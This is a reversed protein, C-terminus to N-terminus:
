LLRQQKPEDDDLFSMQEPPMANPDGDDGNSEDGNAPANVAAAKKGRKGKKVDVGVGLRQEEEYREFNLALLRKLVERRATESITYRIGQATDHFDHDLPLDDWGYAAGVAEDMQCHLERLHQIDASHEDPNHFRNYTATLGEQRNLMIQRRTEHYTEGIDELSALNETFPFPFTEFADSLIYKLRTELTSSFRRVWAEHIASALITFFSASEEAIIKVMHSFVIGPTYFTFTCYKTTEPVVLVRSMPAVTRYLEPRLHEYQWWVERVRQRSVLAREPKVKEEVISYCNHYQMARENDWEFFNIIWRTPSQDPSDNLDEGNLYPFVVDRNRPDSSILSLADEPALVFGMGNVKSGSFSKGSNTQLKNPLYHGEVAIDDLLPTIFAVSNDDLYLINVYDCRCIHVVDV